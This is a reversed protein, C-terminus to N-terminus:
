NDLAQVTAYEPALHDTMRPYSLMICQNLMLKPVIGEKKLWLAHWMVIFLNDIRLSLSM